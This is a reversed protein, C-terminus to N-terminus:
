LQLYFTLLALNNLFPVSGVRQKENWGKCVSSDNGEPHLLSLASPTHTDSCKKSDLTKSVLFFKAIRNQSPSSTM